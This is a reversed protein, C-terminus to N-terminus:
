AIQAERDEGDRPRALVRARDAAPLRECATRLVLRPAQARISMLLPITRPGDFRATERLLWALGKRVMDDEDALLAHTIQQVEEWFLGQNTGRLLAVASARRRWRRPSRSWLLVRRLRRTDAVVMYGLIYQVLADHDAWTSVRDLWGEFLKFHAATCDGVCPELLLVALVKEELVSGHFLNDAVEVLYDLGEETRIVRTFRRALKRLEHTYWGRSQIEDKFFHQVEATHPASAGNVLVRRLHDAIYGAPKSM